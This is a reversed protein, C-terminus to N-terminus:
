GRPPVPIEPPREGSLRNLIEKIGDMSSNDNWFLIAKNYISKPPNVQSVTQMQEPRFTLKGEHRQKVEMIVILDRDDLGDLTISGTIM